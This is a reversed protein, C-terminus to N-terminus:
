VCEEIFADLIGMDDAMDLMSFRDRMERCHRLAEAYLDRDLGIEECTAGGGAARLHAAMEDPNLMMGRLTTRLGPWLEALKENFRAADDDSMAKARSAKLCADVAAGPYRARIADEDPQWARIVPATEMALIRDQLRAMTVSAIGVQQGHVTGPHRDGAFSDIWHSIQHEGMSGPHSIGVVAIGLGGLTLVRQLYGIADHDRHGMGTTMALMKAEDEEQLVYPATAYRTGLMVHSFYWDVQATPRCLSDGLGAGILYQPAGASVGIDIFVGKAAHANQTTKLGSDLTISATSSTYGNMSPATGFVSYQRGDLFTAYKCIDNITGSGVAVLAEVDATEEQLRRVEGEDAHPRDLIVLRAKDGIKRAVAAGMADATDRDAVVAYSAAPMVEDLFDRAQDAFSDGIRICDFPVDVPTGSDPNTWRGQTVEDILSNWGAAAGAHAAVSTEMSEERFNKEEQKFTALDHHCIDIFIKIVGAIKAGRIGRNSKSTDSRM